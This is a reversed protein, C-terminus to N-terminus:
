RRRSSGVGSRDKLMLDYMIRQQVSMDRLMSKVTDMESQKVTERELSSIRRDYSRISDTVGFEQLHTRALARAPVDVVRFVIVAAAAVGVILGAILSLRKLLGSQTAKKM